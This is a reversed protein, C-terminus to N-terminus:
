INKIAPYKSIDVGNQAFVLYQEAIHKMYRKIERGALFPKILETSQPDKSIFDEKMTEDIFFAENLGTLVGCYIKGQVCECLPIGSTKLKVLLRQSRENLITWGNDDSLLKSNVPFRREAM